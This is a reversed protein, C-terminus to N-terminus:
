SGADANRIYEKRVIKKMSNGYSDVRSRGEQMKLMYVTDTFSTVHSTCRDRGPTVAAESKSTTKTTCTGGM